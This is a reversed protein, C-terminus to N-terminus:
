FLVKHIILDAMKDYDSNRFIQIALLIMLCFQSIRHERKYLILTFITIISILITFIKVWDTEIEYIDFTIKNSEGAINNIQYFTPIGTYSVRTGKFYLPVGTTTYLIMEFPKKSTLVIKVKSQVDIVGSIPENQLKFKTQNQFATVTAILFLLYHM